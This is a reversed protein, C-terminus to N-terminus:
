HRQAPATQDLSTHDHAIRWRGDVKRMVLTYAGTELGKANELNFRGTVTAVDETIMTVALDSLALRGLDGGAGYNARYSQVVADYGEVVVGDAVFRTSPSNWYAALFGDLDNDNWAATQAALVGNIIDEAPRGPAVSSAQSPAQSPALSPAEQAGTSALVPASPARLRGAGAGTPKTARTTPTRAATALHVPGTQAVTPAAAPQELTASQPAIPSPSASEFPAPSSGQAPTPAAAQRAAKTAAVDADAEQQSITGFPAAMRAPTPERDIAAVGPACSFGSAALGSVVERAKQQCFSLDSNAHFPVSVNLGAERTYRLDCAAGVEGPAVVEVIRVDAGKSCTTAEEAAASIPALAAAVLIVTKVPNMIPM